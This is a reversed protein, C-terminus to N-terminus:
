AELYATNSTIWQDQWGWDDKVYQRFQSQSLTVKEGLDMELMEIVDDYDDTHDDPPTHSLFRAIPKRQRIEALMKELEEHALKCYGEWAREFLQRHNARNERLRDLLDNKDVEITIEGARNM